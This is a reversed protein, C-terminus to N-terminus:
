HSGRFTRRSNLLPALHSSQHGWLQHRRSGLTAHAVNSEQFDETLTGPLSSPRRQSGESQIGEGFLWGNPPGRLSIRSIPMTEVGEKDPILARRVRLLGCAGAKLWLPQSTQSTESGWNGPRLRLTISLAGRPPRPPESHPSM